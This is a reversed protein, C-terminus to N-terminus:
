CMYNIKCSNLMFLKVIKVYNLMEDEYKDNYFLM